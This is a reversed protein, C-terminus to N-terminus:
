KALVHRIMEMPVGMTPKGKIWIEQPADIKGHSWFQQLKNNPTVEDSKQEVPFYQEPFYNMAVNGLTVHECWTQPFENQQELIYEPVTKGTAKAMLFRTELYTNRHYVLPLCRMTEYIVPFPLCRQTCEQWRLVQPHRRGIHTFPEYRLIVRDEKFFDAPTIPETFICDADLHAIYDADSWQDAYLVQRMHWLMGKGPKEEYGRVKFPFEIGCWTLKQADEVDEHPVLIHLQNFGRAFKAISKLCWELYPFDRRYTVIMMDTQM